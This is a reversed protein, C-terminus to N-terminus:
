VVRLTGVMCSLGLRSRIQEVVEAEDRRWVAMFAATSKRSGHPSRPVVAWGELM